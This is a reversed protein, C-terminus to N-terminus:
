SSIYNDDSIYNHVSEFEETVNIEGFFEMLLISILKRNLVAWHQCIRMDHLYDERAEGEVYCLAEPLSARVDMIFLVGVESFIEKVINDSDGFM